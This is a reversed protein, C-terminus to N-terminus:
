SRVYCKARTGAAASCLHWARSIHIVKTCFILGKSITSNKKKKKRKKIFEKNETQVLMSWDWLSQATCLSQTWLYLPRHTSFLISKLRLLLPPISSRPKGGGRRRGPSWPAPSRSFRRPPPPVSSLSAATAPSWAPWRVGSSPLCPFSPVHRLIHIQQHCVSHIHTHTHTCTSSTSTNCLWAALNCWRSSCYGRHIWTELLQLM